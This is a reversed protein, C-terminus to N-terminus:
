TAVDLIFFSSFNNLLLIAKSFDAKKALIRIESFIADDFALNSFGSKKPINYMETNNM